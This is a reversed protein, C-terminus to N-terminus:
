LAREAVSSYRFRELLSRLEFGLDTGIIRILIIPTCTNYFLPVTGLVLYEMLIVWM